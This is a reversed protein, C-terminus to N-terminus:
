GPTDGRTTGLKQSRWLTLGELCAGPGDWGGRPRTWGQDVCMELRAGCMGSCSVSRVSLLWGGPEMSSGVPGRRESKRVARSGGGGQSTPALGECM